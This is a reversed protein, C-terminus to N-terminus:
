WGTPLRRRAREARRPVSRLRCRSDSLRPSRSKRAASCPARWPRRATVTRFLTRHVDPDFIERRGGVMVALNRNEAGEKGSGAGKRKADAILEACPQDKGRAPEYLAFVALAPNIVGLGVAIAGKRLLPGAEPRGAGLPGFPAFTDTLTATESYLITQGLWEDVVAGNGFLRQFFPRLAQLDLLSEAVDFVLVTPAHGLAEAARVPGPKLVAALAAAGIGALVPRRGISTFVSM